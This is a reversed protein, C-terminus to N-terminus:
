EESVLITSVPKVKKPRIPYNLSNDRYNKGYNINSVVSPDCKVLEAIERNNLKNEKLLEKIKNARKEKKSLEKRIPYKENDQKHAKGYNIRYIIDDDIQFIDAIEKNTYNEKLLMIIEKALNNSIKTKLLRLPYKENDQHYKKGSNISCILSLSVQYKNALNILSNNLDKIEEIVKKIEEQTQFRARIDIYNENNKRRQGGITLNYGNGNKVFSGKKEIWYQEKEDLDCKNPVEELIQLEFNDIGYERIKKHFLCNYDSAKEHMAGSIHLRHREELPISTQGVYWKNNIKNKYGYIYNM